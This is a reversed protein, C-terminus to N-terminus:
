HCVVRSLPEHDVEYAEILDGVVAVLSYLPHRADDRVLDLLANLLDTAQAYQQESDIHVVTAVSQLSQWLPVLRDFDIVANM